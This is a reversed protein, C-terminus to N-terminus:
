YGFMFLGYEAKFNTKQDQLITTGPWPTPPLVPKPLPPQTPFNGGLPSGVTHLATTFTASFPAGEKLDLSPTVGGALYPVWLTGKRQAGVGSISIDAPHALPTGNMTAGAPYSGFILPRRIGGGDVADIILLGPLAGPTVVYWGTPGPGAAGGNNGFMHFAPGGSLGGGQNHGWPVHSLPGGGLNNRLIPASPGITSAPFVMLSGPLGFPNNPNPISIGVHHAIQPPAGLPNDQAIWIGAITNGPLPTPVQYTTPTAGFAMSRIDFTIARAVLGNVPDTTVYMIENLTRDGPTLAVRGPSTTLGLCTGQIGTDVGNVLFPAVIGGAANTLAYAILWISGTVNSLEATILFNTNGHPPLNPDVFGCAIDMAQVVNTSVTPIRWLVVSNDSNPGPGPLEQRTLFAPNWSVPFYFDILNAPFPTTKAVAFQGTPFFINPVRTHFGADLVAATNTAGLIGGTSFDAFIGQLTAAGPNEEASMVAWDNAGPTVGAFRTEYYFPFPQSPAPPGILVFFIPLAVGLAIAPARRNRM